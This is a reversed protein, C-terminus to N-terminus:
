FAAADSRSVNQGFWTDNCRIRHLPLLTFSKDQRLQAKPREIDIGSILIENIHNESVTRRALCSNSKEPRVPLM